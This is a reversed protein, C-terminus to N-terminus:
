CLFVPIILNIKDVTLAELSNEFFQGKRVLNQHRNLM